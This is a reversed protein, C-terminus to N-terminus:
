KDSCTTHTLTKMNYLALSIVVLKHAGLPSGVISPDLDESVGKSWAAEITLENLAKVFFLSFCKANGDSTSTTTGTM